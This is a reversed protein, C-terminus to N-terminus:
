IGVRCTPGGTNAYLGIAGHGSSYQCNFSKFPPATLNSTPIFSSAASHNDTSADSEDAEVVSPTYSASAFPSDPLNHELSTEQLDTEKGNSSDTDATLDFNNMVQPEVRIEPLHSSGNEQLLQSNTPISHFLTQNFPNPSPIPSPIPSCTSLPTHHHLPKKVDALQLSMVRLAQLELAQQLDAQEELKRRWLMDQSNYYMRAGHHLDHLDRSDIGTPPGCPSFDGREMQQQKRFKDPVKGKEKYPKVLVRSDCVFHPNGKALILKVTEAYVFTVFGFMRKQQYPIRVDQVPGYISFYKSVDEEKFCSEAPFTLYIQRAAPNGMGGGSFDSRELRFRGSNNSEEGMSLGAVARRMENQQQQLLMESAATPSYPFFGNVSGVGMRQQVGSNSRLLVVDNCEEVIETRGGDGSHFFRCGSGNKCFGKAYYLCPRWGLGLGGDEPWNGGVPSAPAPYFFDPNENVSCDTLFSLHHQHQHQHQHQHHHDQFQFEDVFDGGAGVGGGNTNYFPKPNNNNNTPTILFEDDPNPFSHNPLPIELSPLNLKHRLSSSSSSSTSSSSSSSSSASSPNFNLENRAKLIISHLLPEPGFALRIMEKESQDQLLLLGMIKSANEPDLNQLRSFVIRTAEYDDMM